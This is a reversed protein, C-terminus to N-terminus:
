TEMIKDEIESIPIREKTQNLGDIIDELTNKNSKNLKLNGDNIYKKELITKESFKENV